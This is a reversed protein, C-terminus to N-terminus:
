TQEYPDNKTREVIAKAKIVWEKEILDTDRAPLDNTTISSASNMPAAVVPQTPLNNLPLGSIAPPNNSFPAPIPQEIRQGLMKESVTSPDAPKLEPQLPMVPQVEPLKFAGSENNSPRPDM